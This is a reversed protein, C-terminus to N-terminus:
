YRPPLEQVSETIFKAGGANMQNAAWIYADPRLNFIEGPISQKLSATPNPDQDQGGSRRLLFKDAVVPGNIVLRNTYCLNSGGGPNKSRPTHDAGGVVSVTDEYCTNIGGLPTLLWADVRTVSDKIHIYYKSGAPAPTVDPAIVVQSIEKDSDYRPPTKINDDIFVKAGNGVLLIISKNPGIDGNVIHYEVPDPLIYTNSDCDRLSIKHDPGGVYCPLGAATISKANGKRAQVKSTLGTFGDQPTTYNGFNATTPATAYKNGFALRGEKDLQAGGTGPLGARYVAGSGMFAGEATGNLSGGVLLGYETWSGYTRQEPPVTGLRDKRNVQTSVNGQVVMDGGRVQFSPKYGVLECRTRSVYRTDREAGYGAPNPDFNPATNFYDEGRYKIDNTKRDIYITHCYKTGPETEPPIPETIPTSLLSMTGTPLGHSDTPDDMRVDVVASKARCDKVGSPDVQGRIFDCMEGENLGNLSGLSRTTKYGYDNDRIAKPSTGPKIITQYVRAKAYSTAGNYTQGGNNTGPTSHYYPDAPTGGKSFGTKEITPNYTITQGDPTITSSSSSPVNLEYPKKLKIYLHPYQVEGNSASAHPNNPDENFFKGNELGDMWAFQSMDTDIARNKLSDPLVISSQNVTYLMKFGNHYNIQSMVPTSLDDLPGHAFVNGNFLALKLAGNIGGWFFFDPNGIDTSFFPTLNIQGIKKQNNLTLTNTTGRGYCDLMLKGNLSQAYFTIGDFSFQGRTLFTQISYLTGPLTIPLGAAPVSFAYSPITRSDNPSDPGQYCRDLPVDGNVSQTVSMLRGVISNPGFANALDNQYNALNAPTGGNTLISSILMQVYRETSPASNGSALRDSNIRQNLPNMVGGLLGGGGNISDQMQNGFSTIGGTNDRGIKDLLQDRNTGYQGSINSGELGSSPASPHLSPDLAQFAPNGISNLVTAQMYLLINATGSNGGNISLLSSPDAAAARLWPMSPIPTANFSFKYAYDVPKPSGVPYNGTKGDAQRMGNQDWDYIPIRVISNLLGFRDKRDGTIRSPDLASGWRESLVSPTSYCKDDTLGRFSRYSAQPLDVTFPTLAGAQQNGLLSYGAVCLLGAVIVLKVDVMQNFKKNRM